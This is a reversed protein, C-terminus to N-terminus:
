TLEESEVVEGRRARARHTRRVPRLEVEDVNPGLITVQRRGCTRSGRCSRGDDAGQRHGRLLTVGRTASTRRRVQRGAQRHEARQQRNGQRRASEAQAPTLGVLSYNTNGTPIINAGDFLPDIFTSPDAYDKGWRPRNSIPVNKSTTQIVPYAGNVSRVTFTIGIKAASAQVVPLM